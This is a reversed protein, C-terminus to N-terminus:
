NTKLKKDIWGALKSIIMSFHCRFRLPMYMLVCFVTAATRLLTKLLQQFQLFSIHILCFCCYLGFLKTWCSSSYVKYWVSNVGEAKEEWEFLLVELCVALISEKGKRLSIGCAQWGLSYIQLLSRLWGKPTIFYLSLIQISNVPLMFFHFNRVLAKQAAHLRM